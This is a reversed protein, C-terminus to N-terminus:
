YVQLLQELPPCWCNAARGRAAAAAAERAVAVGTCLLARLCGRTQGAASRRRGRAMMASAQDWILPAEGASRPFGFAMPNTGYILSDPGGDRSGPHTVFSKTNLFALGVLGRPTPGPFTDPRPPSPLARTEFSPFRSRVFSSYTSRRPWKRGPTPASNLNFTSFFPRDAVVGTGARRM